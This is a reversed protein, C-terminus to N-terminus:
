SSHYKLQFELGTSCVGRSHGSSRQLPSSPADTSAVSPVLVVMEQSQQVEAPDGDGKRAENRYGSGSPQADQARADVTVQCPEAGVRDHNQGDAGEAASGTASTDGHHQARGGSDHAKPDTSWLNAELRYLTQPMKFQTM